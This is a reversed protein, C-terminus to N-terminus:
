FRDEDRDEKSEDKGEAKRGNGRGKGGSSLFDVRDASITHESRKQGEDNEWERYRLQGTVAVQRGKALYEKCVEAQRGFTSVNIFLRSDKKGNGEALRMACIKTQGRERMEPDKTLSGILTVSNM